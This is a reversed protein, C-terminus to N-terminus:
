RRDSGGLNAGAACLALAAALDLVQQHGWGAGMEARVPIPRQGDAGDGIWVVRMLHGCFGTSGCFRCPALEEGHWGHVEPVLEVDVGAIPDPAITAVPGAALVRTM